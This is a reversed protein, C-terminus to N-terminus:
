PVGACSKPHLAGAGAVELGTDEGILRVEYIGGNVMEIGDPGTELALIATSFLVAWVGNYSSLSLRNQRIWGYEDVRITMSTM